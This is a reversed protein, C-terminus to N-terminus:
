DQSDDANRDQGGAARIRDLKRALELWGRFPQASGAAARIRGTIPEGPDLELTMKVAVPCTMAPRLSIAIPGIRM